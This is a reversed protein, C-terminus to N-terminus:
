KYWRKLFEGFEKGFETEGGSTYEAFGEAFLECTNTNSYESSGNLGFLSRLEEDYKKREARYQAEAIKYEDFSSFNKRWDDVFYHYKQSIRQEVYSQVNHGYEHRIMSGFTGDGYVNFGDGIQEFIEPLRDAFNENSFYRPNFSIGSGASMIGDNTLDLRFDTKFWDGDMSEWDFSKVEPFRSFMEELVPKAENFVRIDINEVFDDNLKIGNDEAWNIVDDWTDFQTNNLVGETAERVKEKWAERDSKYKALDTQYADENGNYDRRHPRDPARMGDLSKNSHSRKFDKISSILTCRCNYVNAPDADPDGPYMIDGIENRFPEDIDVMVGDLEAHEPRVRSDHTSVWVKKLVIGMDQADHYSDMRGKSEAGTVTTRANRVASKYEMEPISERLRKAINPISEGQIIGQMVQSNIQKTNWREVKKGDVHKYPLLTKDNMALNRVTAEDVLEFSFGKIGSTQDALANYNLAYAQPLKGNIYDAATRDARLMDASVRKKMSDWHRGTMLQEQRWSKYKAETIIGDALKKQMAADDKEFKKFYADVKKSVDNQAKQYIGKLKKEMEEIM